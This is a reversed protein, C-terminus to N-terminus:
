GKKPKAKRAAAAAAREAARAAVVAQKAAKEDAVAKAHAANAAALADEKAKLQAQASKAQGLKQELRAVLADATSITKPSGAAAGSAGHEFFSEAWGPPLKGSAHALAKLGAYTTTCLANFDDFLKKKDGGKAFADRAAVAASLAGAASVAAAVLTTAQAALAALAPDADAGLLAPWKQEGTLQAGLVPRKFAAPSQSGFYLKYKPLTVDLKKVGRIASSVLDALLDLGADAAVAAARADSVADDLATQKKSAADWSAGFAAFASVLSAGNPDGKLRALTFRWRARLTELSETIKATPIGAM